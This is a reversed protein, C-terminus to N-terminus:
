SECWVAAFITGEVLINLIVHIARTTRGSEGTTDEYFVSVMPRAFRSASSKLSKCFTQASM